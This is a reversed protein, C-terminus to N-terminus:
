GYYRSSVIGHLPRRLRKKKKELKFVLFNRKSAVAPTKNKFYSTFTIRCMNKPVLARRFSCEVSTLISTFLLALVPLFGNGTTKTLM